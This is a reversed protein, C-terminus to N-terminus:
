MRVKSFLILFLFDLNLLKKPYVKLYILPKYHHDFLLIDRIEKSLKKWPDNLSFKYHRSLSALTQAYYLTTSKAWPEIAGDALSKKEDPVVLNPDVNDTNREVKEACSFLSIISAIYISKLRM